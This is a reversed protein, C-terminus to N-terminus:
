PYVKIEIDPSQLTEAFQRLWSEPVPSLRDADPQMSPRALGYLLIGLLDPAEAVVEKMLAQYACLEEASPPQGDKEFLCTQVVHPLTDHM